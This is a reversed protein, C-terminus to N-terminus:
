WFVINLALTLALVIVALIAPRHHWAVQEDGAHATLGYVLGRLEADPKPATLVSVVATVVFCTTWAFIAGWFNQAMDSPYSHVLALKPLLSGARTVGTVEYHLAAAATGTVLGSFAGHGTTRRWFM